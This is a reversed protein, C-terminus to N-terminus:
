TELTNGLPLPPHWRLVEKILANVYPLRYQDDFVPLRDTGVVSDLEAQARRSVEPNLVMMLFFTMM